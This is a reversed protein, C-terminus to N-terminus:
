NEKKRDGGIEETVVPLNEMIVDFMLVSRNNFRFTCENVYNQLYKRSVHIHTGKVM